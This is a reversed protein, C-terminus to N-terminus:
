KYNVRCLVCIKTMLRNYCGICIAHGCQPLVKGLKNMDELCVPCEGDKEKNDEAYAGREVESFVRSAKDITFQIQSLLVYKESYYM